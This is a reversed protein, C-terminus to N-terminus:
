TNQYELQLTLPFDSISHLTAASSSVALCNMALHETKGVHAVDRLSTSSPIIRSGLTEKSPLCPEARLVLAIWTGNINKDFIGQCLFVALQERLLRICQGQHLSYGHSAVFIEHMGLAASNQMRQWGAFKAFRALTSLWDEASQLDAVFYSCNRSRLCLACRNLLKECM